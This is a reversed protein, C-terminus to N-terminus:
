KTIRPILGQASRPLSDFLNELLNRIMVLKTVEIGQDELMAKNWEIKAMNEGRITFEQLEPPCISPPINMIQEVIKERYTNNNM